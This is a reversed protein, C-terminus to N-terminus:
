YKVFKSKEEMMKYHYDFKIKLKDYGIKRNIKDMKDMKNSYRIAWFRHWSEFM